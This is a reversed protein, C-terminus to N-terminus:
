MTSVVPSLELILISDLIDAGDAEAGGDLAYQTLLVNRRQNYLKVNVVAMDPNNVVLSPTSILSVSSFQSTVM